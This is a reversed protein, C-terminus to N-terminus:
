RGYQNPAIDGGFTHTTSFASHLKVVYVLFPSSIHSDLLYSPSPHFKSVAAPLLQSCECLFFFVEFVTPGGFIGEKGGKKKAQWSLAAALGGNGKGRKKKKRRREKVEMWLNLETRSAPFFIRPNQFKERADRAGRLLFFSVFQDVRREAAAIM